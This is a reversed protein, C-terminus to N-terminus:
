LPTPGQLVSGTLPQRGGRCVVEARSEPKASPLPHNPRRCMGETPDGSGTTGPVMGTLSGRPCRAVPWQPGHLLRPTFLPLLNSKAQITPGGRGTGHPRLAPTAPTPPQSLVSLLGARMSVSARGLRAPLGPRVEPREGKGGLDARERGRGASTPLHPAAHDKDHAPRCHPRPLCGQWM